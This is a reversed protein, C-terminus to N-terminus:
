CFRTEKAGVPIPGILQQYQQWIVHASMDHVGSRYNSRAATPLSRAHSQNITADVMSGSLSAAQETQQLLISNNFTTM